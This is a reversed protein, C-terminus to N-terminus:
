RSDACCEDPGADRATGLALADDDCTRAEQRRRPQAATLWAALCCVADARKGDLEPARPFELEAALVWCLESSLLLALLASLSAVNLRSRM